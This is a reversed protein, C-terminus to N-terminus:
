NPVRLVKFGTGGSDAAGMSVQQVSLTGGVNRRIMLATNGDTIGSSALIQMLNAAGQDQWIYNSARHFLQTTSVPFVRPGNTGNGLWLDPLVPKGKVLNFEGNGADVLVNTATGSDDIFAANTASAERGGLLVFTRNVGAGLKVNSGNFGKVGEIHCGSQNVEIGVDLTTGGQTGPVYGRVQNGGNNEFAPVNLRLWCTGTAGTVKSSDFHQWDVIANNAGEMHIVCGNTPLHLFEHWCAIFANHHPSYAVGDDEFRVAGGPGTDVGNTVSRLGCGIFRNGNCAGLAKMYPVDNANANVPTNAVLNYFDCLQVNSFDFCAGGTNRVSIDHFTMGAFGQTPTGFRVGVKATGATNDGEVAFNGVARRTRMSDPYVYGVFDLVPGTQGAARLITADGKGSFTAKHGSLSVGAGMEIVGAGLDIHGANGTGIAALAAAFTRKASRLSLGNNTDAGNPSVYVVKEVALPLKVVDAANAKGNIEANLQAGWVDNPSPTPLPM